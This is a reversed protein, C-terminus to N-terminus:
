VPLRLERHRSLGLSLRLAPVRLGVNVGFCSFALILKGRGLSVLRLFVIAVNSHRMMGEVRLWCTRGQRNKLRRGTVTCDEVVGEDLVLSRDNPM